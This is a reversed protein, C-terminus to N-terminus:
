ADRLVPQFSHLRAKARAYAAAAASLTGFLGLHFKKRDKWIYACWKGTHQHLSVGTHGSTNTNRLGLNQHNEAHTAARLNSMANNSPNGDRHDIKDVPWAGYCIAWALRHEYILTGDIMIRRYGGGRNTGARSGVPARNSNTRTWTFVGSDPDYNVVERVRDISINHKKMVFEARNMLIEPM